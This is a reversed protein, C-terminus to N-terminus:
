ALKKAVDAVRKGLKQAVIKNSSRPPSIRKYDLWDISHVGFCIGFKVDM